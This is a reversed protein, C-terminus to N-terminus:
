KGVGRKGSFGSQRHDRVCRGSFEYPRASPAYAKLYITGTERNRNEWAVKAVISFEHDNWQLEMDNENAVVKAPEPQHAIRHVKGDIDPSAAWKSRNGVRSEFFLIHANRWSSGIPAVLSLECNWILRLVESVNPKDAQNPQVDNCSTLMILSVMTAVTTRINM